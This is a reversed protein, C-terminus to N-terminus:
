QSTTERYFTMQGKTDDNLDTSTVDYYSISVESPSNSQIIGIGIGMEDRRNKYMFVLRREKIVAIMSEFTVAPPTSTSETQGVIQLLKNGKTQYITASGNRTSGDKKTLKIRWQGDLNIDTRDGAIALQTYASCLVLFILVFGGLAGGYKISGGLIQTKGEAFSSLKGFLVFTCLLSTIAITLFELFGASLM